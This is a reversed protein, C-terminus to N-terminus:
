RTRKAERAEQRTGMATLGSLGAVLLMMTAPEPVSREPMGAVIFLDTASAVGNANKTPCEFVDSQDPQATSPAAAIVNQAMALTSLCIFAALFSRM